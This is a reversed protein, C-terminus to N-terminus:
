LRELEPNTFLTVITFNGPPVLMMYEEFTNSDYTVDFESLDETVPIRIGKIHCIIGKRGEEEVPQPEFSTGEALNLELWTPEDDVDM